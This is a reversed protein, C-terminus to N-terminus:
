KVKALIRVLDKVKTICEPTVRITINGKRYKPFCTKCYTVREMWYDRRRSSPKNTCPEVEKRKFVALCGHCEWYNDVYCTNCIKRKVIGTPTGDSEQTTESVTIGQTRRMYTGCEACRMFYKRHCNPCCYKVEPFTTARWKTSCPKHCWLCIKDKLEMM